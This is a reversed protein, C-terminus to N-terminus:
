THRARTCNLDNLASCNVSVQMHVYEKLEVKETEIPPIKCEDSM